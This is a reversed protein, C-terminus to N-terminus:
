LDSPLFWHESKSINLFCLNSKMMHHESFCVVQPNFQELTLMSTFEGIKSKNQHILILSEDMEEDEKVGQPTIDM